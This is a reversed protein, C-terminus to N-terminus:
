QARIIISVNKYLLLYLYYIYLYWFVEYTKPNLKELSEVSGFFSKMIDDNDSNSTDMTKPRTLTSISSSSSRISSKPDSTTTTNNNNINTFTSTTTTTTTTSPSNKRNACHSTLSPQILQVRRVVGYLQQGITHHVINIKTDRLRRRMKLYLANRRTERDRILAIRCNTHFENFIFGISHGDVTYIRYWILFLILTFVLLFFTLTALNQFLSDGLLQTDGKM